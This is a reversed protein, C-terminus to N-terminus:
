YTTQLLCSLYHVFDFEFRLLNTPKSANLLRQKHWVYNLAAQKLEHNVSHAFSLFTKKVLVFTSIFGVQQSSLKTRNHSEELAIETKRLRDALYDVAL